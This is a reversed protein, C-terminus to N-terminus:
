KKKEIERKRSVKSRNLEWRIVKNGGDENVEIVKGISIL